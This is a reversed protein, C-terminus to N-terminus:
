RSSRRKGVPWCGRMDGKIVSTFPEKKWEPHKEALAKVRDMAFRGPLLGATRVLAHRRQRLRRDREAPKVFDKGETTVKKVFDVIAAKSPEDNWSPLVPGQPQEKATAISLRSGVLAMCVAVAVAVTITRYICCPSRRPPNIREGANM